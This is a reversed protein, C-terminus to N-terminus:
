KDYKMIIKKVRELDKPTDVSITKSKVEINYEEPLESLTATYGGDEERQADVRENNGNKDKTKKGWAVM